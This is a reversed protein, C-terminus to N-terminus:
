SVEMQDKPIQSEDGQVEPGALTLVWSIWFRTKSEIHLLPTLVHLSSWSFYLSRLTTIGGPVWSQEHVWTWQSLDHYIRTWSLTKPNRLGTPPSNPPTALKNWPDSDMCWRQTIWTAGSEGIEAIESALVMTLRWWGVYRRSMRPFPLPLHLAASCCRTLVWIYAFYQYAPLSVSLCVSLCAPLCASLCVLRYISLYTPLYISLLYTPLCAPLYTPQNISQNVFLWVSPSVSPSVSLYVSLCISLCVSLCAPLCGPLWASSHQFLTHFHAHTCYRTICGFAISHLHVSDLLVLRLAVQHLTSCHLYYNYHIYTYYIYIYM